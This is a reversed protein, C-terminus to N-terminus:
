KIEPSELNGNDVINEESVVDKPINEDKNIQKNVISKWIDRSNTIDGDVIEKKVIIDDNILNENILDDNSVLYDNGSIRKEDDRKTLSGYDNSYIGFKSRKFELKKVNKYATGFADSFLESLKKRAADIAQDFEEEYNHFIKKIYFGYIFMPGNFVPISLWSISMLKIIQYFPFRSTIFSTLSDISLVISMVIFYYKYHKNRRNKHYSYCNFLVFFLTIINVLFKGIM